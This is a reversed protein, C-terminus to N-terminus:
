IGWVRQGEPEIFIGKGEQFLFNVLGQSSNKSTRAFSNEGRTREYLMYWEYHLESLFVEYEKNGNGSYKEEGM